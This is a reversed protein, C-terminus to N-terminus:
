LYLALQERFLFGEEWLELGCDHGVQLHQRFESFAHPLNGPLFFTLHQESLLSGSSRVPHTHGAATEASCVGGHGGRHAAPTYCCGWSAEQPCCSPASGPVVATPSLQMPSLAANSPQTTGCLWTLASNREQHAPCTRQFTSGLTPAEQQAPARLEVRAQCSFAKLKHDGPPSETLAENKSM